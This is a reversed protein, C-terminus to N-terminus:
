LRKKARLAAVLVAACASMIVAKSLALSCAAGIAGYEGALWYGAAAALVLNAANLAVTAGERKLPYLVLTLPNLLVNFGYALCLWRLAPISAGYKGGWFLPVVIGAALALGGAAFVALPASVWLAKRVYAACAERSDLAAARPLLVTTLATTLMPLVMALRRAGDYVATDEPRRLMQLLFVEVYSTAGVLVVTAAAYRGFPKLKRQVGARREASLRGAFLGRQSVLCGCATLVSGAAICGLIWETRVASNDSFDPNFHRLLALILAARLVAAAVQLAFFVGFRRQSQAVDGGWAIVSTGCLAAAAGWVLGTRSGGALPFQTLARACVAALATVSASLILRNLLARRFVYEAEARLGNAWYESGVRITTLQVGLDSALLLVGQLALAASLMGREAQPLTRFLLSDAALTVLTALVQAGLVFLTDRAAASRRVRQMLTESQDIVAQAM